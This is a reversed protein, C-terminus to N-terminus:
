KVREMFREHRALSLEAIKRCLSPYDLGVEAAAKPLLSTEVMGPITNIELVWPQDDADLLLDVRAYVQLQLSNYARMAVEQVKRTVDEDLPAPCLYDTNGKTYKNKYDYFGSKPKIEIVPLIQSGLIGV